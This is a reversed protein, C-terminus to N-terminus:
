GTICGGTSVPGSSSGVRGIDGEVAAMALAYGVGPNITSRAFVVGIVTGDPIHDATDGSAVLPGGSNGPRVVADIQYVERVTRTKGYIDLGTALFPDAVAAPKYDFPGGEPFGLVVGITGRNVVATDISLAPDGLGPVRLVALDLRPDFLVATARHRGVGDIVYPGPVGAVVHANTVVLGPAVVFGSGEQIVGCGAGAIQVTSREAKLVAARVALNTPLSVPPAAEPPLGAFVIPFGESDL